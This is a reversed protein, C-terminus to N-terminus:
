YPIGPHNLLNLKQFLLRLGKYGFLSLITLTKYRYYINKTSFPLLTPLNLQIYLYMCDFIRLLFTFIFLFLVIINYLLNRSLLCYSIQSLILLSYFTVLVTIVGSVHGRIYMCCDACLHFISYISLTFLCMYLLFGTYIHHPRLRRM